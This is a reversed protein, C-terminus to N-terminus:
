KTQYLIEQQAIANQILLGAGKTPSFREELSAM